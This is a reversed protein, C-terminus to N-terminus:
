ITKFRITVESQVSNNTSNSQKVALRIGSLMESTNAVVGNMKDGKSLLVIREKTDTDVFEKAFSSLKLPKSTLATTDPTLKKLGKDDQVSNETTVAVSFTLKATIEGSDVALKPLGQKAAESLVFLKNTAIELQLAKKLANLQEQTLSSVKTTKKLQLPPPTFPIEYQKLLHALSLDTFPTGIPFGGKVTYLNEVEEQNVYQEAFKEKDLLLSNLIEEHKIIQESQSTVIAEFTEEILKSVFEAFGLNVPILEGAM